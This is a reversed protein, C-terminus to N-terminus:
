FLRHFRRLYLMKVLSVLLLYLAVIGVLFLFYVPPLTTLGLLGGVPTFPLLTFLLIGAATVLLVPRAARSQVFPLRQTRLLQLILVQTWMSELFWGTQFLSIFQSQEAGSLSSFTGGCLVPCFVFYLFAFTLFDFLSSVPGFIRMFRGLTRGSWELPRHLLEQDVNDWPLILCLTDYLLNLLLLQAATMPFFPLLVSALVISCINGFNSSATIRIYKAMNVFARRGELIGHALVHLDKKLLVVDACEKLSEAATDVSIGVDAAAVAPLDNVGDGLFGVTHGNERLISVISAKQRPSLEAFVTSQEVRIPLDNPSLTDLLSGTLIKDTPIGLRRCVSVAAEAQDGTLLKVQVHLEQLQRLAAAASQKPADFFALYGLLTLDTEEEDTLSSATCRKYAVALVKMGDETMEDTVAHISSLADAGIERVEGRYEAYRCRAAVEHISGKVILLREQGQSLLVSVFRREYDFPREDTKQCTNALAQLRPGKQPMNLFRLVAQDLDSNAGTHFFSNLVAYELVKESENGLLDTYYELLLTDGTLTGTKDVCLVDMSGVTQMANINKVVTQEKGMTRSGKALCAATVAPLLEPTLGVAVSLSFLLASLWDGRALGSAAFVIPVLFLMFRILVWAISNAGQEFGTKRPTNQPSLAGYVTDKGVALVIGEGSGGTVVSGDYVINRCMSLRTPPVPLPEATKRLVASEGTLASQSVFLDHAEVVRLDVPVREGASLRIRDGIVLLSAHLKKWNGDRRVLIYANHPRTLPDSIRKTQIEQILRLIGGAILTGLMIFPTTFNRSFNSALLVDTLFSIVTLVLLVVSFPTFFAHFLLSFVSRRKEGTESTGLRKRQQEAQETTLGNTSVGLEEGLQEASLQTCRLIRERPTQSTENRNMCDRM